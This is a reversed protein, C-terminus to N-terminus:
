RQIAASRALAKRIRARMVKPNVVGEAWNWRIVTWGANALAEQRIKERRLDDLSLYKSMGDAEGIVRQRRWLFDCWYLHGDAGRVPQGCEPEPLRGRKMNVRSMSELVSESAPNIQPLARRLTGAGPRRWTEEGVASLTRMAYAVANADIVERRVDRESDASRIILRACADLVAVAKNLELGLSYDIATRALTTVPLGDRIERDDEHVPFNHLQLWGTRSGHGPVAFHVTPFHPELCLPVLTSAIQEQSEDCELHTERAVGGFQPLGLLKAATHGVAVGDPRVAHAVAVATRLHALDDGQSWSQADIYVGARVRLLSGANVAAALQHKTLGLDILRHTAVAGHVMVSRAAAITALIRQPHPMKHSHLSLARLAFM